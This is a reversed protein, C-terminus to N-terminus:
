FVHGIESLFLLYCVDVLFYCAMSLNKWKEKLTKRGQRIQLLFGSPLFLFRDASTITQRVDIKKEHFQHLSKEMQKERWSKMLSFCINDNREHFPRWVTFKQWPITLRLVSRVALRADKRDGGCPPQWFTPGLTAFNRSLYTGDLMLTTVVEDSDSAQDRLFQSM